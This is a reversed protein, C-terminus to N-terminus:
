RSEEAEREKKNTLQHCRLIRNMKMKQVLVSLTQWFQAAVEHFPKRVSYHLQTIIYYMLPACENGIGGLTEVAIPMLEYNSEELIERLKKEKEQEGIKAAAGSWKAAKSIASKTMPNRFTVDALLM